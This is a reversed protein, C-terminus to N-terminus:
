PPNPSWLRTETKDYADEKNCYDIGAGIGAGSSAVNVLVRLNM